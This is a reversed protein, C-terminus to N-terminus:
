ATQINEGENKRAYVQHSEPAALVPMLKGLYKLIRIDEGLENLLIKWIKLIM